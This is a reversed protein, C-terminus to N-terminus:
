RRRRSQAAAGVDWMAGFVANVYPAFDEPSQQVQVGVTGCMLTLTNIPFHPDFAVPVGYRAAWRAINRGMSRGKAPV